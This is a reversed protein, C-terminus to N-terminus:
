QWLTLRLKSTKVQDREFSSNVTKTMFPVPLESPGVRWHIGRAQPSSLDCQAKHDNPWAGYKDSILAMIGKDTENSGVAELHLQSRGWTGVTVIRRRDITAARAHASDTSSTTPTLGAM